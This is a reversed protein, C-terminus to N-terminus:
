GGPITPDVINGDADVLSKSVNGNEDVQLLWKEVQGRADADRIANATQEGVAKNLRQDVWDDSMQKTGDKLTSLTSSGYKSETIVYEPPPATNRWVGDIGPGLPPDGVKVIDGNLKQFGEDQMYNDSQAEGYVGKENRTFDQPDDPAQDVPPADDVPPPPPPPPSASRNTSSSRGSTQNAAGREAKPPPEVLESDKVAKELRKATRLDGALKAFDETFRALKPVQLALKALGAALDIVMLVDFLLEGLLKGAEFSSALSPEAMYKKFENFRAVQSTTVKGLFDKPNTFVYKVAEVIAEREEYAEKAKQELSNIHFRAALTSAIALSPGIVPLTAMSLRTRIQAANSGGHQSEWYEALAFTKLMDAAGIVSHAFNEFLGYVVGATFSHGGLFRWVVSHTEHWGVATSVEHALVAARHQIEALTLHQSAYDAPAPSRSSGSTGLGQPLAFTSHDYQGLNGPPRSPM